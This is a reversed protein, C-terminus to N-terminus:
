LTECNHSLTCRCGLVCMQMQVVTTCHLHKCGHSPNTDKWSSFPTESIWKGFQLSLNVHLACFLQKYHLLRISPSREIVCEDGACKWEPNPWRCLSIILHPFCVFMYMNIKKKGLFVAKLIHVFLDHYDSQRCRWWRNSLWVVSCIM